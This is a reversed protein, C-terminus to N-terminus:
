ASKSFRKYLAFFIFIAALSVLAGLALVTKDALEFDLSIRMVGIGVTLGCIVLFVREYKTM